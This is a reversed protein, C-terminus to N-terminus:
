KNQENILNQNAQIEWQHQQITDFDEKMVRRYDPHQGTELLELLHPHDKFRHFMTYKPTCIPNGIEFFRYGAVRKMFICFRSDPEDLAYRMQKTWNKDNM